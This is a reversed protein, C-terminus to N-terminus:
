NGLRFGARGRSCNKCCTGQIGINCAKMTQARDFITEVDMERSRDIMMATAPDITLDQAKVIKKVKAEGAKDKVEEATM